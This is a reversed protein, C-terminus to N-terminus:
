CSGWFSRRVRASLTRRDKSNQAPCTRGASLSAMPPGAHSLPVPFFASARRRPASGSFPPALGASGPVKAITYGVCCSCVAQRVAVWPAVTLVPPFAALLGHGSFLPRLLSECKGGPSRQFSVWALFPCAIIIRGKTSDALRCLSQLSLLFRSRWVGPQWTAKCGPLPTSCSAGRRSRRRAKLDQIARRISFTGGTRPCEKRHHAM